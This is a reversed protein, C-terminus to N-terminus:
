DDDSPPCFAISFECVHGHESLWLFRRLQDLFGHRLGPTLLSQSGLSERVATSPAFLLLYSPPM